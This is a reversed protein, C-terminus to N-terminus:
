SAKKKKASATASTSAGPKAEGPVGGEDGRQARAACFEPYTVVQNRGSHKAHYLAHDAHEILTARDRGDDPFAAVGVSMTVKFPGKDSEIV